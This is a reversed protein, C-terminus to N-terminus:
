VLGAPHAQQQEPGLLHIVGVGAAVVADAILRRHCRWWLTEACMIALPPSADVDDLLRGLAAGFQPTDMYDAYGRFGPDRWEPHRTPEAPRRRGGLEEGWWDYGIGRGTLESALASRAFQPHRRSGPYRRVDIVRGVGAPALVATFQDLSRAGHGVTFLRTVNETINRRV